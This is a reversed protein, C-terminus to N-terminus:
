YRLFFIIIRKLTQFCQILMSNHWNDFQANQKFDTMSSMKMRFFILINELSYINGWTIFWRGICVKLFIHRVTYHCGNHLTLFTM